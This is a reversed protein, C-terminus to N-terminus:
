QREVTITARAQLYLANSMAPVWVRLLGTALSIALVAATGLDRGLVLLQASYLLGILLCVPFHERAVRHSFAAARLARDENDLVVRQLAVTLFAVAFAVLPMSGILLRPLQEAPDQGPDAGAFLSAVMLALTMYVITLLLVRLAPRLARVTRRWAEGIGPPNPEVLGDALYPVLFVSLLFAAVLVAGMGVVQVGAPARVLVWDALLGLGQAALALVM